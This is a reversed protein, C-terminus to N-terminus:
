PVKLDDEVRAVIEMIKAVTENLPRRTPFKAEDWKWRTIYVEPAQGEVQLVASGGGIEVIQRRIKSVVQDTLTCSKALDDSCGVPSKHDSTVCL